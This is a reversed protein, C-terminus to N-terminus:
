AVRIKAGDEVAQNIQNILNRVSDQSFNNGHLNVVVAQSTRSQSAVQLGGASRGGTGGTGGKGVSKIANVAGMGAALVKAFAAMNAPFPLKLAEAAGQWASVLAQAAGFAKSIQLMKENGHSFAEAMDGFFMGAKDLSSGYRYVDISAMKDAHQKQLDEMMAAHDTQSIKRRDLAEDLLAQRRNFSEMELQEQTMLSQQLSQFESAFQDTGGGAAAGSGTLAGGMGGAGYTFGFNTARMAAGKDYKPDRPDLVVGTKGYGMAMMQQAAGLSVGLNKALIAASSAAASVGENIDVNALQDAKLKADWAWAGINKMQTAVGAAAGAGAKQAETLKEAEGRAARYATLKAQIATIQDVLTKHQLQMPILAKGSTDAMTAELAVRRALLANLNEVILVEEKDVGLKIAAAAIRFKETAGTLEETAAALARADEGTDTFAAMLMPLAIGALLGAAAGLAGFALGLDPLQIAL